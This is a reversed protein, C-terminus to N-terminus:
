GRGSSGAVEARGELDSLSYRGGVSAARYELYSPAEDIAYRYAVSLRRYGGSLLREIRRGSMVVQRLAKIRFAGHAMRVSESERVRDPHTSLNTGDIGFLSLYRPMRRITAGAASLRLVLDKDAAIRYRSDLGLLGGDLLRRRFFMTCSALNLFGNVVYIRRFPIERRLAVARGRADTVIYDGFVVDVKPNVDFYDQVATLTGPLYQEDANLWSLFDGSSRRWARNIADYMGGDPESVALLGVQSELWQPTGDTSNADQILHELGVGVQGRISGVCRKLKELANRTPTAISFRAHTM